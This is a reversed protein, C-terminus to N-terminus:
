LINYTHSCNQPPSLTDEGKLVILIFHPFSNPLMMRIVVHIHMHPSQFMKFIDVYACDNAFCSFSLVFYKVRWL